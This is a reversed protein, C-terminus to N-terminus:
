ASELDHREQVSLHVSAAGVVEDVQYAHRVGVSAATISRNHLTWAIAVEGPSRGKPAAVTRLREAVALARTLMPERFYPSRRRWDNHPLADIRERTMKGSLLGWQMSSDAIVGITHDACFPLAHDEIRRRLLSYPVQLSTVPSIRRLRELQGVDCNSVGIFRAKGERQLAAMTTWAAELSHTDDRSSFNPEVPWGLQYLDVCEIELRRLSSEAERRISRPELSASVNGLEDWVLSCETFIYPREHRPIDRLARAVMSESRGLGYAAATDVWNLGNDIARRVTDISESDKQPGWGFIWDGGGMAWTGLGIPTISM